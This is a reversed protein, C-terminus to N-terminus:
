LATGLQSPVAQLLVAASYINVSDAAQNSTFALSITNGATLYLTLGHCQVRVRGAVGAPHYRLLANHFSTGNDVRIGVTQLGADLSPDFDVEFSVRYYGERQVTYVGAAYSGYGLTQSKTAGTWTYLTGATTLALADPTEDVFGFFVTAPYTSLANDNSMGAHHWLDALIVM